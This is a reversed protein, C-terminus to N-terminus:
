KAKKKALERQARQRDNLTAEEAKSAELARQKADQAALTKDLDEDLFDMPNDNIGKPFAYERRFRASEKRKGSFVKATPGFKARAAELRAIYEPDPDRASNFEKFRELLRFGRFDHAAREVIGETIKEVEAQMLQKMSKSRPAIQEPGKYFGKVIQMEM